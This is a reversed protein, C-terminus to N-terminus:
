AFVESIATSWESLRTEFISDDIDVTLDFGDSVHFEVQEAHSDLAKELTECLSPAGRVRIRVAEGDSLAARITDALQAVARERIDDALSAGLIRAAVGTTIDVLQAELEAFRRDILQAAEAGSRAALEAFATEHRERERAMEADHRAQWEQEVEARV